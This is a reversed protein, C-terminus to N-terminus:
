DSSAVQKPEEVTLPQGHCIPEADKGPKTVLVQTGCTGCTYRKGVTLM